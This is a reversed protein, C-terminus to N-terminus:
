IEEDLVSPPSVTLPDLRDAQQNAWIGWEKLESAEPVEERKEGFVRLMTRIYARVIRSQRWSNAETILRDVRDREERQKLQLEEQRQRLLEEQQREIREREKRQREAEEKERREIRMRGAKEIFDIVLQNLYDELRKQKPTDHCHTTNCYSPGSDLVLLGNYVYEMKTSWFPKKDKDSGYRVQNYRERLRLIAVQEGAVTVIPHKNWREKVVSVKGGFREIRKILSDMICLARRLSKKGVQISLTEKNGFRGSYLGDDNCSKAKSLADRTQRVLSHPNRLSSPVTVPPLRRSRELMEQIDNDFATPPNPSKVAKSEDTSKYFIIRQLKADSCKPLPTRSVKKGNQKKAWYGRYPKPIRYAKCIKGIMVDSCGVDRALISAPTQWLAKYFEGRTFVIEQRNPLM